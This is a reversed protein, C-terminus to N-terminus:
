FRHTLGVHFTVDPWTSVALDETVGLELITRDGLALSGGILLGCSTGSLASFSSGHYFPTSADLQVTFAIVEWPSWGAGLTGFAVWHSQLDPLVDGQTLYM